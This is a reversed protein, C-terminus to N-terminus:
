EMNTHRAWLVDPAKDLDRAWAHFLADFLLLTTQEFLSGAFQASSKSDRDHKSAAPVAIVLDAVAALRSSTTTTIAAIRGGATKAQEAAMVVGPTGGSGSVAILVDGDGLPPTTTEGVVHVRRGLHMLRMAAMRVALGSRGEGLVFLREASAILGILNEVMPWDIEHLVRQNESLVLEAAFELCGSLGTRARDDWPNDGPPGDHEPPRSPTPLM